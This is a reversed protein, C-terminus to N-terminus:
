QLVSVTDISFKWILDIQWSHTDTERRVTTFSGNFFDSINLFAFVEWWWDDYLINLFMALFCIAEEFLFFDQYIYVLLTKLRYEHYAHYLVCIQAKLVNWLARTRDSTNNPLEIKTREQPVHLLLSTTVASAATESAHSEVREAAETEFLSWLM